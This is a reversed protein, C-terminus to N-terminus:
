ADELEIWLDGADALDRLVGRLRDERDPPLKEMRVMDGDVSVALRDGPRLRLAERAAKPVVIQNKSSMKVSVVM